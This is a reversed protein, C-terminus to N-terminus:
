EIEIKLKIGCYYRVSNSVMTNYGLLSMCDGFTKATLQGNPTDMNYQQLMSLPTQRQKKDNVIDYKTGLWECVPNSQNLFEDTHHKIYAPRSIEKNGYLYAKYYELLLIIFASRVDENKLETDINRDALRHNEV